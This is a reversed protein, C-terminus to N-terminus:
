VIEQKRVKKLRAVRCGLKENVLIHKQNVLIINSAM